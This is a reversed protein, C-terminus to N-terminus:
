IFIFQIDGDFAMSDESPYMLLTMYITGIISVESKFAWLSQFYPSLFFYEMCIFSFFASTVISEDPLM